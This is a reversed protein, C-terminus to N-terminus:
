PLQHQLPLHHSQLVNKYPTNSAAVIEAVKLPPPAITKAAMKTILAKFQAQEFPMITNCTTFITTVCNIHFLQCDNCFTSCIGVEPLQQSLLFDCSYYAVHSFRDAVPTAIALIVYVLFLNLTSSAFGSLSVLLGQTMCTSFRNLIQSYLCILSREGGLIVDLM